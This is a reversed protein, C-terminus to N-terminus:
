HCIRDTRRFGVRPENLGKGLGGGGRLFSQRQRQARSCISTNLTPASNRRSHWTLHGGLRSFRHLGGLRASPGTLSETEQRGGGFRWVTVLAAAAAAQKSLAICQAGDEGRGRGGSGSRRALDNNCYDQASMHTDLTVACGHKSQAPPKCSSM